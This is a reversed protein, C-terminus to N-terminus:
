KISPIRQSNIKDSLVEDKPNLNMSVASISKADSNQSNSGKTAYNINSINALNTQLNM